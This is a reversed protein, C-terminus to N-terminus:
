FFFNFVSIGYSGSNVNIPIYGSSIFDPDRLSIQVGKNLAANNMIIFYLFFRCCGVHREVPSHIFIDCM